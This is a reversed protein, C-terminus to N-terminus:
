DIGQDSKLEHSMAEDFEQIKEQLRRIIRSRAVYVAGATKGLSLAVEKIPLAKVSSLWFAEWSESRFEKRVENAAWRFVERRYEIKLLDSSPGESSPEIKLRMLTGTDGSGRDPNTRTLANITANDAVRKLWTRFRARQPDSEWRHIAGAVSVLVQQALDEADAHQLGQIRAIRYVLPRYITTFEDWASQNTPDQIEILLSHRTEPDQNM